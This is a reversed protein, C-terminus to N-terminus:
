NKVTTTKEKAAETPATKSALLRRQGKAARAAM